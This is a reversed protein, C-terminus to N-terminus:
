FRKGKLYLQGNINKGKKATLNGLLTFLKTKTIISSVIIRKEIFQYISM